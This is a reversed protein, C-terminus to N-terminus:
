SNSSYLTESSPNYILHGAEMICGDVEGIIGAFQNIDIHLPQYYDHGIPNQFEPYDLHLNEHIYEGTGVVNNWLSELVVLDFVDSKVALQHYGSEELLFVQLRAKVQENFNITDAQSFYVMGERGNTKSITLDKDINIAGQSLRVIVREFDNFTYSEQTCNDLTIVFVRSAGRRISLAM